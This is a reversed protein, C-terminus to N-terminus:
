SLIKKNVKRLTIIMLASVLGIITTHANYDTINNWVDELVYQIQDSQAFEVGLFNRFQNIGITLAVASTFGTIVPRSM